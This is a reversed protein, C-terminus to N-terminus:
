IVVCFVAAVVVSEAIPVSLLASSVKWVASLFRFVVAILEVDLEDLVLVDVVEATLPTM